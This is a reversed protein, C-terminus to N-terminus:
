ICIRGAPRPRVLHGDATVRHIHHLLHPAAPPAGAGAADLLDRPVVAGLGHDDADVRAAHVHGVGRVAAVLAHLCGRWTPWQKCEHHRSASVAHACQQAATDGSLLARAAAVGPSQGKRETLSIHWWTAAPGLPSFYQQHCHVTFPPRSPRSISAMVRACPTSARPAPSIISLQMSRSPVLETLENSLKDKGSVTCRDGCANGHKRVARDTHIMQRHHRRPVDSLLAARLILEHPLM